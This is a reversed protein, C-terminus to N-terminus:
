AAPPCTSLDTSPGSQTVTVPTGGQLHCNKEGLCVRLLLDGPDAYRKGPLTFMDEGTADNTVRARFAPAIPPLPLAVSQGAAVFTRGFTVLRTRPGPGALSPQSLFVQLVVESDVAGTNRVTVTLPIAGCPTATAPSDVAVVAFSTYSYGEGFTFVPPPTAPVTGEPEYFRYTIGPSAGAVPYPSMQGRDAPLAADSAYWTVPTRGAPSYVGLLADVAAAAGRMGPYWADLVADFLALTAPDICFAGGHVLVAILPVGPAMAARVAAALQPQMGPLACTTRDYDEAECDSKDAAGGCAYQANGMGLVLVVAATDAAGAAAAAAPFGSADACNASACGPSYAVAASGVARTLEQLMSPIGAACCGPDSYSGLLLYSANANPGLFAIRKGAGTIASASLPLTANANLLLTMGKRAALEALALHAPSAVDAMTIANYPNSAPPDFMGLRLRARMLRRVATTLQATTINGAALALPIGTQVPPYAPGGGGEQDLGATLGVTAAEAYTSVYHHTDVINQWADYDSM